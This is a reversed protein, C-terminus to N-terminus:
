PVLTFSNKTLGTSGNLWLEASPGTVLTGIAAPSVATGKLAGAATYRAYTNFPSTGNVDDLYPLIFDGGVSQLRVHQDRFTDYQGSANTGFVTHAVLVGAASFFSAESRKLTYNAWEIVFSGSASVGIDHSDYWSSNSSSDTVAVSAADVWAGSTNNFRRFFITDGSHGQCTMVGAGTSTLALHVGYSSSPCGGMDFPAGPRLAGDADYLWLRPGNKSPLAAAMAGTGDIAVEGFEDDSTPVNFPGARLTGDANFLALGWGGFRTLVAYRGTGRSVVIETRRISGVTQYLPVVGGTTAGATTFAQAAVGNLWLAVGVPAGSGDLDFDTLKFAPSTQAVVSLTLTSTRPQAAANLATLTYVTTPSQTTPTGSIVGTTADLALGAPLAPSISVSAVNVFTTPVVPVLPVNQTLSITSRVYELTPLPDVVTISMSTQGEGAVNQAAISFNTTPTRVTPTGTISCDAGLSLGTPLKASYM